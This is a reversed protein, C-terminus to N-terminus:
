VAEVPELIVPRVAKDAPSIASTIAKVGSAIAFARTVVTTSALPSKIAPVALSVIPQSATPVLPCYKTASEASVVPILHAENLATDVRSKVIM